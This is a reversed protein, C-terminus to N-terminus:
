ALLGAVGRAAEEYLGDLQRLKALMGERNERYTDSRVDLSSELIAM